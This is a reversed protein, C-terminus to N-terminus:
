TPERVKHFFTPFLAQLARGAPPKDMLWADSYVVTTWWAKADSRGYVRNASRATM